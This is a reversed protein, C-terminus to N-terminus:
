EKPLPEGLGEIRNVGAVVDRVWQFLETDHPPYGGKFPERIKPYVDDLKRLLAERFEPDCDCLTEVLTGFLAAVTRRTEDPEFNQAM